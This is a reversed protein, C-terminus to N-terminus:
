LSRAHIKDVSFDGDPSHCVACSEGLKPSTMADAHASAAKEVHCGTCAATMPPTPNIFARPSNVAIRTDPVPVQQGDNVHCKACDRLDGPFRVDSFDNVSGNFGYIVFPTLQLAGESGETQDGFHIRHIMVPFDITQPPNQAVPRQSSDTQTPNHCLLCYQVNQRIGGHLALAFHCQNCNAQAVEVPHASVDSGDVPFNIVDNFGVDRVTQAAKTGPLLTFNKYGEIGISFTGTAGAPVTAKFTYSYTGSQGTSTKIASESVVSQYDATPGAMVLNLFNMDSPQIAHGSKDNLTYTVTPSKGAAGNDVKVLKFVVGPLGPAFQPITHAGVISVDFPLEGQLIHCEACQKDSIEPLNAHNEGTVFNV